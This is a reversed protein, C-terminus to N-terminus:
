QLNLVGMEDLGTRHEILDFLSREKPGRLRMTSVGGSEGAALDWAKRM